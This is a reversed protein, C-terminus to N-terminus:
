ETVISIQVDDGTSVDRIAIEDNFSSAFTRGDPAFVLSSIRKERAELKYVMRQTEVRWMWITGDESGSALMKGDPAIAVVSQLGKKTKFDHNKFKQTRGATRTEWVSVTTTNFAAALTCGDPSYAFHCVSGQVTFHFTALWTSLSLEKVVSGSSDLRPKFLILIAHERPSFAFGYVTGGARVMKIVEGSEVDWLRIINDSSRSAVMLGDPSFAVGTVIGEHGRLIRPSSRVSISARFGESSAESSAESGAESGAENNAESGAESSAETSEENNADVKETSWSAFADEMEIDPPSEARM